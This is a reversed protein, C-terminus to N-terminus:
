PCVGKVDILVRSDGIQGHVWHAGFSKIGCSILTPSCSKSEVSRTRPATKVFGDVTTVCPTLETSIKWPSIRASDAYRDIELVRIDNIGNDLVVLTADKTRFVLTLRPCPHARGIRTRPVVALNSDVWLVVLANPKETRAHVYRFVPAFAEFRVKHIPDMSVEM